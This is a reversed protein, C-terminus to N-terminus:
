DGARGKSRGIYYSKSLKESLTEENIPRMLYGYLRRLETDIEVIKDLAKKLDQDPVSITWGVYGMSSQNLEIKPLQTIQEM